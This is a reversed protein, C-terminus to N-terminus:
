SQKIQNELKDLLNIMSFSYGKLLELKHRAVELEKKTPQKNNLTIIKHLLSRQKPLIFFCKYISKYTDHIKDHYDEISKM